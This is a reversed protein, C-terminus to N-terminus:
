LRRIARLLGCEETSIKKKIEGERGNRRGDFSALKEQSEAM